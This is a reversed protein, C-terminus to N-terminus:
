QFYEAEVLEFRLSPMLSMLAIANGEPLPIHSADPSVQNWTPDFEEWHGDIAVRNWAHLSFAEQNENYAIGIVTETPLGLSRGLTTFLNAYDACDGQRTSITDIVSQINRTEDYELYRHVFHTLAEALLRPNILDFVNNQALAKVSPASTPYHITERKAQIIDNPVARFKRAAVSEIFLNEDALNGWRGLDGADSEISLILRSLSEHKQIPSNLEIKLDTSHFLSRSDRWIMAAKANPVRDIMLFDSIRFQQPVLNSDLEITTSQSQDNSEIIYGQPSKNKVTWSLSRLRMHDFDLQQVTHNEGATPKHNRIWSEIGLYDALTLDGQLPIAEVGGVLAKDKRRISSKHTQGHSKQRYQDAALLEHPLDGSFLLEEKITTPEGDKLQFTMSSSFRWNGDGDRQNTTHYAGIPDHLLKLVFWREGQLSEAITSLSVTRDLLFSFQTGFFVALLTATLTSLVFIRKM